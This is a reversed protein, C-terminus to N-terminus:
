GKIKGQKPNSDLARALQIELKKIADNLKNENSALTQQFNV